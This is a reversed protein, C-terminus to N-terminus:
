EGVQGDISERLLDAHGNHRAYETITHALIWRLSFVVEAGRRTVPDAHAEMGADALARDLHEDSRAIAAAYPGALERLGLGAARHWDADNDALWDIGDWPASPPGGALVVTFWYDEVYTMHSILGGLTIESVGIRAQLQTADLGEGKILLTARQQDLFARAMVAEDGSLPPSVREVM